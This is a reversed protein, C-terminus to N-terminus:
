RGAGGPSGPSNHRAPAPQGRSGCCDAVSPPVSRTSHATARLFAPGCTGCPRGPLSAAWGPFRKGPGTPRALSSERSDSRAQAFDHGAEVTQGADLGARHGDVGAAVPGAKHRIDHETGSPEDFSGSPWVIQPLIRSRTQGIVHDRGTENRKGLQRDRGVALQIAIPGAPRGAASLTSGAVTISGNRPPSRRRERLLTAAVVQWNPLTARQLLGAKADLCFKKRTTPMGQEPTCSSERMLFQEADFQGEPLQKRRRGDGPQAGLDDPLRAVANIALGFM